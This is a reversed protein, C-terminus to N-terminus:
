WAPQRRLARRLRRATGNHLPQHCRHKVILEPLVVTVTLEARQNRLANIYCAVPPREVTNSGSGSSTMPEITRLTSCM